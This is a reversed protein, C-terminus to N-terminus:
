SLYAPYFLYKFSYVHEVQTSNEKFMVWQKDQSFKYSTGHELKFINFSISSINIVCHYLLIVDHFYVWICFENALYMWAHM